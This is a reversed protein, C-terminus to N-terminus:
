ISRTRTGLSIAELRSETINTPRDQGTWCTVSIPQQIEISWVVVSALVLNPQAVPIADSASASCVVTKM